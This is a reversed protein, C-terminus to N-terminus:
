IESLQLAAQTLLQWSATLLTISSLLWWSLFKRAKSSLSVYNTVWGSTEGRGASGLCFTPM